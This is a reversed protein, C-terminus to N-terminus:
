IVKNKKAYIVMIDSQKLLALLITLPLLLRKLLSAHRPRKRQKMPISDDGFYYRLSRFLGWPTKGFVMRTVVFGAKDLLRSITNPSYIHLHRPCDLHYWKDKFIRGNFSDINPIGIICWGDYKLLSCMKQLVESPNPVHELYWWATIIDFSNPPFPAETVPGNFIELSYKHAATEVALKSIDVGDVHCGTESQIRNLFKGSGCGVDLVQSQSNLKKYVSRIIEARGLLLKRANKFSTVIRNSKWWITLSSKNKHLREEKSRYPSYDDPYSKVIDEASIRPNMYVLGCNRCRVYIFVGETGYLRDKANFLVDADDSQCLDCIVGHCKIM